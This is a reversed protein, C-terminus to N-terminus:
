RASKASMLMRLSKQGRPSTEAGQTGRSRSEAESTDPPGAGGGPDWFQPLFYVAPPGQDGLFGDGARQPSMPATPLSGAM